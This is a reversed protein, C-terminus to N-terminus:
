KTKEQVKKRLAEVDAWLKTWRQWEEPPLKAIAQAGRVGALDPDVLWHQM